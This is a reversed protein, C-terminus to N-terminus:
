ESRGADNAVARVEPILGRQRAADRLLKRAASALTREDSKALHKLAMWTPGDIRVHIVTGQDAEM